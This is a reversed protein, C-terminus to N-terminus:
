DYEVFRGGLPSLLIVGFVRCSQTSFLSKTLITAFIYKTSYKVITEEEWLLLKLKDWITKSGIVMVTASYYAFETELSVSLSSSNYLNKKKTTRKNTRWWNAYKFWRLCLESIGAKGCIQVM